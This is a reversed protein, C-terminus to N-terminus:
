IAKYYIIIFITTCCKEESEIQRLEPGLNRRTPLFYFMSLVEISYFTGGLCM